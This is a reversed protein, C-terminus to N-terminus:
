RRLAEQRVLAYAEELDPVSDKWLIEGRIQELENDLGVLFINVRLCQISKRYSEVDKPSEMVVKDCHDLNSFIKTLKGYFETLPRGRQKATFARQNLSFVQLEEIGDYFATTLSKWIERATPVRVYRKMIKPKMLM